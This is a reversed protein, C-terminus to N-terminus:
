LFISKQFRVSPWAHIMLDTSRILRSPAYRLAESEAQPAVMRLAAVLAPLAQSAVYEVVVWEAHEAASLWADFVSDAASRSTSPPQELSVADQDADLQASEKALMDQAPEQPSSQPASPLTAAALQPEIPRPGPSQLPHATVVQVAAASSGPHLKGQLSVPSPQGHEDKHLQNVTSFSGAQSSVSAAPKPSGPAASAAIVELNGQTLSSHTSAPAAQPGSIDDDDDAM